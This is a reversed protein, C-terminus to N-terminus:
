GEDCPSPSRFTEIREVCMKNDECFVCQKTCFEKPRYHCRNPTPTFTLVSYPAVYLKELPILVSPYTHVTELFDFIAHRPKTSMSNINYMYIYISMDFGNCMGKTTEKDKGAFSNQLGIIVPYGTQEAAKKADLVINHYIFWINGNPFLKAQFELKHEDNGDVYKIWQIVFLDDTIVSYKAICYCNRM